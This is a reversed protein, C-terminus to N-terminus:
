DGMVLGMTKLRKKGRSQPGSLKFVSKQELFSTEQKLFLFCQTSGVKERCEGKELRLEYSSAEITLLEESPFSLTNSLCSLQTPFSSVLLLSYNKGFFHM